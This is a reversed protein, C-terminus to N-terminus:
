RYPEVRMTLLLSTGYDMRAHRSLILDYARLDPQPLECSSLPLLYLAKTMEGFPALQSRSVKEPHTVPGPHSLANM